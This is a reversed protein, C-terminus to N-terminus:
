FLGCPGPIAEEGELRGNGEKGVPNSFCWGRKQLEFVHLVSGRGKAKGEAQLMRRWLLWM